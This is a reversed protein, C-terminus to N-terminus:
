CLVPVRMLSGVSCRMFTFFTASSDALINDYETVCIFNPRFHTAEQLDESFQHEVSCESSATENFFAHWIFNSLQLM